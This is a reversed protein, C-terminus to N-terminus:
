SGAREGPLPCPDPVFGLEEAVQDTRIPRLAVSGAACRLVIGADHGDQLRDLSEILVDEDMAAGAADVLRVSVADLDRDDILGAGHETDVIVSGARDIWGSRVQTVQRGTHTDLQGDTDLRLIWPTYALAVFVRQPGNQFYWRGHPDAAYNRGIFDILLGNVIPEGRILWRGRADLALWGFVAPVDPWKAM